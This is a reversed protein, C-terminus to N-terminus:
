KLIVNASFHKGVASNGYFYHNDGENGHYLTMSNKMQLENHFIINLSHITKGAFLADSIIDCIGDVYVTNNLHRNRDCRSYTATYEGAPTVQETPTIVCKMPIDNQETFSCPYSEPMTRLIKREATDFLFWQADVQAVPVGDRSLVTRRPYLLREPRYPQTDIQLIDEVFIPSFVTLTLRSLLFATATCIFFADNMGLSACHDLSIQQVCRLVAAATMRSQFDCEHSAVRITESYSQSM